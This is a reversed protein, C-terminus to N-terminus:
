YQLGLIYLSEQWDDLQMVTGSPTFNNGGVSGVENRKSNEIIGLSQDILQELRDISAGDNILIAREQELRSRAREIEDREHELRVREDSIRAGERELSALEESYRGEREALRSERDRYEAERSELERERETLRASRDDLAIRERELRRAEAILRGRETAIDVRESALLKRESGITEIQKRLEREIILNYSKTGEIATRADAISGRQVNSLAFFAISGIAIGGLFCLIYKKLV